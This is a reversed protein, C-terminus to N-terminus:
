LDIQQLAPDSTLLMALVFAHGMKKAPNNLVDSLTMGLNQHRYADYDKLYLTAGKLKSLREFSDKLHVFGKTQMVARAYLPAYIKKRAAIYDYPKGDWWSCLPKRGKGMPYRVARELSWGDTAWNWYDDTPNGDKGAHEQYVKSYQWANEMKIANRGGYLACPGLYFPSLDRQWDHESKSTTNVYFGNIDTEKEFISIVKLQM